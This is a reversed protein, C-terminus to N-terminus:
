QVREWTDSYTSITEKERELPFVESNQMLVGRAKGTKEGLIPEVQANTLPCGLLTALAPQEVVSNAWSSLSRTIQNMAMVDVKLHGM